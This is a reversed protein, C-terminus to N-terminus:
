LISCRQVDSSPERGMVSFTEVIRDNAEEEGAAQAKFYWDLAKHPDLPVGKGERYMDGIALMGRTIGTDSAKIYWAAAAGHDQEVGIGYKYMHGVNFMAVGVGADSAKLYWAMAEDLDRETGLGKYYMLGVNYFALAYGVGGAKLFWGMAKSYDQEAGLGHYYLWGVNYMTEVNGADSAKLCWEMATSYDQDVGLGDRYMVGMSSMAEACGANSSKLYWEIAKGCDQRAGQGHEYMVGISHMALASGSDCAKLYWEMAKSYDQGVGLGKHYMGGINRMASADGAASAKLWWEMAKNFDRDVGVGNFYISGIGHLADSSGAHSAKLRWEMAKVLDKEVGFGNSYMVSINHMADASGADSARHYWDLARNYDLQLEGNLYAHGLGLKLAASGVSKADRFWEMIGRHHESVCADHHVYRHNIRGQAEVAEVAKEYWSAAEDDDQEVGTGHQYMESVKLMALAIGAESAALYWNLAEGYEQENSLILGVTFMAAAFTFDSSPTNFWDMSRKDSPPLKEKLDPPLMEELECIDMLPASRAALIEKLAKAYHPKEANARASSLDQGGQGQFSREVGPLVEVAAPREEATQKWCMQICDAYNKPTDDPYEELIGNMICRIMGDPTHNRYPRTSGAAMEWMVMGLAYVDSKASYQPTDQFLEPAMWQLTGGQGSEGVRIALGFDCIRAEKHETLLINSSKIDCHLIGQSHLHALGLAIDKAIQTKIEWTKLDNKVIAGELSGGEVYEMVIMDQQVHYFQVIHKHRLQQVIEVERKNTRHKSDLFRKVVVDDLGYKAKFIEAQAGGAIKKGLKMSDAKYTLSFFM